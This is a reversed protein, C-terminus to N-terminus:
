NSLSLSYWCIDDCDVQMNWMHVRPEEESSRSAAAPHGDLSFYSRASIRSVESWTMSTNVGTLISFVAAICM